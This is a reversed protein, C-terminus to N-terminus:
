KMGFWPHQTPFKDKGTYGDAGAGLRPVGGRTMSARKRISEQKSKSVIEEVIEGSGKVLRTRGTEREFIRHTQSAEALVDAHSRPAMSRGSMVPEQPELSEDRHAPPGPGIGDIGDDDSIEAADANPNAPPLDATAAARRYIRSMTTDRINGAGSLKVALMPEEGVPVNFSLHVITAPVDLAGATGRYMVHEGVSYQENAVPPVDSAPSAESKSHKRRKHSKRKKHRKKKRSSKKDHKRKKRRREDASSESESESESSSPGM